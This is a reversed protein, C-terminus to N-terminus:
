VCVGVGRGGGCVCWGVKSCSELSNILTDLEAKNLEVLHPKRVGSGELVTLQLVVLPEQVSGVRDSALAVQVCVCLCLCEGLWAHVLPSTHPSLGVKAQWDFDELSGCSLAAVASLMAEQGESCRAEVCEAVLM